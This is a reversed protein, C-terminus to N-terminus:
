LRATKDLAHPGGDLVLIASERDALAMAYLFPAFSVHGIFL